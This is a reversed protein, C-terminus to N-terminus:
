KKRTLVMLFHGDKTSTRLATPRTRSRENCSCWKLTDGEISFIGQYTRGQYQGSTGTADIHKGSVRYTGDGMPQGQGGTASIKKDTITLMINMRRHGANSGDGEVVHGEWEGVLSKDAAAEARAPGSPVALCLGISFIGLSRIPNM